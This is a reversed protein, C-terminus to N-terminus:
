RWNCESGEPRYYISNKGFPKSMEDADGYSGYFAIGVYHDYGVGAKYTYCGMQYGADKTAEFPYNNGGLQLGAKM